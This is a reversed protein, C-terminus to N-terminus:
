RKTLKIPVFIIIDQQCFYLFKSSKYIGDHYRVRRRLYKIIKIISNKLHKSSNLKKIKLFYNNESLKLKM